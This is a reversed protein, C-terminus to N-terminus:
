IDFTKMNAATHLVHLVSSLMGTAFIAVNPLSPNMHTSNLGNSNTYVISSNEPSQRRVNRHLPSANSGLVALASVFLIKASLGM